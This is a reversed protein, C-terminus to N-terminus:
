REAGQQRKPEAIAKELDLIGAKKLLEAREDILDLWSTGGGACCQGHGAHAISYADHAFHEEPTSPTQCALGDMTMALCELVILARLMIEPRDCDRTPKMSM